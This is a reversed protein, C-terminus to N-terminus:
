RSLQNRIAELIEQKAKAIEQRMESLIEQKMQNLDAVTITPSNPENTLKRQVKPSDIGNSHAAATIGATIIGNSKQWTRGTSADGNSGFKKNSVTNNILTAGSDSGDSASVGSSSSTSVTDAKCNKTTNRLEIKTALESLFDVRGGSVNQKQPPPTQSDNGNTKTGVVVGPGNTSPPGSTKRLQQNKLQDALSLGKNPGASKLDAPPPPPPPPAKSSVAAIGNNPPPPPAPPPATPTKNQGNIQAPPPQPITSHGNQQPQQQAAAYINGSSSTGNSNQSCRRNPQNITGNQGNHLSSYSSKQQNRYNLHGGSGVSEQDPERQQQQSYVQPDQYINGANGQSISEVEKIARKVLDYFSAAEEENYFNLGYVQKNEGKWQHFVSNAQKYFLREFIIQDLLVQNDRVRQAIIRYGAVNDQILHVTASGEDSISTVDSGEPKIWKKTDSQYYLVDATVTAIPRM